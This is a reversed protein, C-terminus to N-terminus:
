AADHRRYTFAIADRAYRTAGLETLCPDRLMVPSIVTAVHLGDLGPDCPNVAVQVADAAVLSIKAPSTPSYVVVTGSYRDWVDTYAGSPDLAHWGAVNPYLNTANVVPRGSSVILGDPIPGLYSLVAGVAPSSPGQYGLDVAQQLPSSELPELGRYLPNVPLSTVAGVLILALAAALPRRTIVLAVLVAFVACGLAIESLRLGLLPTGSRLTLGGVAAAGCAALVLLVNLGWELPRRRTRVPSSAALALFTVLFSAVGIGLVVRYTPVRDLLTLRGVLPPLPLLAWALLLMMGAIAPWTFRMIGADSRYRALLVVQPAIFLGTLLFSSAEPQNVGSDIRTLWFDFPGGLLQSLPAGGAMVRRQGPYATNTIAAITPSVDVYYAVVVAAAVAVVVATTLVPRLRDRGAASGAVEGVLWGAGVLGIVIAMSLQFPPYILMTFCILSYTSAALLLWRLIGVRRNAEILCALAAMALGVVALNGPSYWWHFFPSLFLSASFAISLAIRGTLVFFLAYSPILLLLGIIWWRAAFGREVDLAFFPWNYPKFFTSWHRNPVDLLVSLDQGGVGSPSFRPYGLKSQSVIYPTDVHWEDWRLFRSTGALLAPDSQAPPTYAGITAYVGV